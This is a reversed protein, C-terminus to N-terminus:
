SHGAFSLITNSMRRAVRIPIRPVTVSGARLGIRSVGGPGGQLNQRIMAPYGEAERRQRSLRM